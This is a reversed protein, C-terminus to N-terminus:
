ANLEEKVTDRMLQREAATLKWIKKKYTAEVYGAKTSNAPNNFGVAYGKTTAIVVFDNELQRTLSAVVKTDSTRNYNPRPKGVKEEGSFVGTNKDLRIVSDTFVGSNKRKGQKKGKTFIEANQFDGTRVKMYGDSYTGIQNGDAALGEVHIRHKMAARANTALARLLQDADKIKNVKATLKGIIASTNTRVSIM